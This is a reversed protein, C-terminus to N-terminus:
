AIKAKRSALAGVGVGIILLLGQFLYQWYTPLGILAIANFGVTVTVVGVLTGLIHFEGNRMVASGFFAAAFSSLLYSDGASVAGNGTRSALLVGGLAACTGCIAFAMVRMRNVRIGSLEATVSNGGAAQLSQGFVTRNLLVWLIVAIGLMMYVPYPVGGLTGLTLSTFAAANPVAVPLGGATAYNLGVVITGVGLTAVLPNVRLVTVVAGNVFGIATGLLVAALLAFPIPTALDLMMTCVAVGAFSAVNGISLDFDGAVLPFTLGMAIIAAGANQNLINLANGWAPFTTPEIISATLILGALVLM